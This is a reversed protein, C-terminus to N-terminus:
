PNPSPMRDAAMRISTLLDETVDQPYTSAINVLVTGMSVSCCECDKNDLWYQAQYFMFEPSANGMGTFPMGSLLFGSMDDIVMRESGTINIYM